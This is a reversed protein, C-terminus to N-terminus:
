RRRHGLRVPRSRHRRRHLGLHRVIGDVAPDAAAFNVVLIDFLARGIIFTVLTTLFARLRLFGVLYGNIAGFVLAPPSRRRCAGGLGAARPHLLGLRRRLGVARLDLRGLPRHRRRAHRRDPRHRRDLVRRAPPDFEQLSDPKFFGPIATGFSAVTVVLALFPIANDTWRKTLIEGILHDPVLNYRWAQLRERFTM